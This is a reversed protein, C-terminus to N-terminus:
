NEHPHEKTTKLTIPGIRLLCEDDHGDPGFLASEFLAREHVSAQCDDAVAHFMRRSAVNDPGVTTELFRVDRTSPRSLVSKLMRQGLGMGRAREHVAVQWVFLVDSHQPHLYASVFGCLQDDVEAVVCTQQFHECLLLYTYVSNLDLPPCQKILQHIAQGDQKTPVRLSVLDTKAFDGDQRVQRVSIGSAPDSESGTSGADGSSVTPHPVATTTIM